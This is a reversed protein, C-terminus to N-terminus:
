YINNLKCVFFNDINYLKYKKDNIINMVIVYWILYKYLFMYFGYFLKIYCFLMIDGWIYFVSM